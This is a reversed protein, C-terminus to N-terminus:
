LATYDQNSGNEVRSKEVKGGLSLHVGYGPGHHMDAWGM